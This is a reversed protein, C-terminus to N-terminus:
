KLFGKISEVMSKSDLKHHALVEDAQGCAPVEEVGLSLIKGTFNNKLLLSSILTGQGFRIYHDDLTIITKYNGAMDMLWKEDIENLWPLNILTAKIGYEKLSEVALAAQNLMVPGYAIIVVDEGKILESGQGKVFNYDELIPFTPKFPISYFRIYTSYKNTDVAWKLASQVEYENAPQIMTLDPISGLASIDRVSQHSHGPTSPLLGALSGVYIVKKKETANNYIQENARTSLFCAFSHVIPIKNELALGGAMSVMDQEAIGCEFFREKFQTKFEYLAHDKLLDANLAVIDKNRDAIKVLEKGYSAILMQRGDKEKKKPELEKEIFKIKESLKSNIRNLIEDSAKKYNEDSPAGSHYDYFEGDKDFVDGEMFSVGKGKVTDAILVHPMDKVTKFHEFADKVENFNHGNCRKVDWGFATFKEQLKGLDNVKSVWTDSQIKNCDVILVIEDFNKNATQQLSEWIQGEQLEGDGSLVYINRKKQNLRNALAMGRAKSIGMGLSGTNTIIGPTHIDPHGPLGGLRRLQHIKEYELRGFGILVSYLAPVDHGKSSFFVDGNETNPDKMEYLWLWTLIDISSLTSGLHGSGAEKVMSLANLRFIDSLLSSLILPDSVEEKIRQIESLPIFLAKPM